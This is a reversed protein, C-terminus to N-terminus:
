DRENRQEKEPQLIQKLERLHNHVTERDPTTAGVPPLALMREPVPPVDPKALWKRLAEAFRPRVREAPLNRLEFEGVDLAAWYIAPHSWQDKGQARLRMQDVAEHLAADINPAPRCAKIFEALSPPWDLSRRCTEIGTKIEHMTLREDVFATAWENRWEMLSEAHQFAAKWRNPYMADMKSWLHDIPAKGLSPHPDLWVSASAPLSKSM